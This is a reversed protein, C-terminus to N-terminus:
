ASTAEDPSKVFAALAEGCMECLDRPRPFRRTLIGAKIKITSGQERLGKQCRDCYWTVKSSTYRVGPGARLFAAFADSCKSCLDAPSVVVSRLPGATVEVVSFAYTSAGCRDCCVMGKRMDRRRM